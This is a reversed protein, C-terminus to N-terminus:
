EIRRVMPLSSRSFVFALTVAVTPVVVALIGLSSWPIAVPLTHLGQSDSSYGWYNDTTAGIAAVGIVLGGTVGLLTGLVSIVAAQSASLWRRTRPSAGIAALTALDPRSDAAALGTATATAAVALLVALGLIIL